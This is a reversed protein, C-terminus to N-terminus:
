AAAEAVESATEDQQQVDRGRIFVTLLVVGTALLAAGLLFALRFGDVIASATDAGSPAHGLGQLASQTRDAAVTALIALGLAGGVQQATNFVGSALGADDTDIKTTAIVTLPVFTLGMGIAMVVLGPLLETAYSGGPTIRTTMLMGAAAIILGTITVTRPNTRRIFGQALGSGLGIGVTVPLFALGAKLPSFGLIQQVYLTSFFFLAYMGGVVLLLV